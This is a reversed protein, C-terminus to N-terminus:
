QSIGPKSIMKNLYQAIEEDLGQRQQVYYHNTLSDSTVWRCGKEIDFELYGNDYIKFYKEPSEVAFYVAMLDWSPRQDNLTKKEVNWLWDRYTTRVINGSPTNILSKGTMIESGADIFYAPKPFNDVLFKTYEATGNFFFNWDKAYYGESNLANLAGLAVWKKVKKGVLEMGTLESISDPDSVLLDFLGKTHGITIYIISNEDAKSLISRNLRTQEPADTNLIYRNGYAATDKSLKEALMKDISDGVSADYNAGVPIDDNGYYRNIADIIGTGYPVTGSSYIVGLIEVQGRNAYENLMALAGVDDCDSGMDTDLIVKVPEIGLEMDNECSLVMVLALLILSKKM